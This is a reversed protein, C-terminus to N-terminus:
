ARRSKDALHLRERLAAKPYAEGSFNSLFRGLIIAAERGATAATSIACTPVTAAPPPVGAKLM